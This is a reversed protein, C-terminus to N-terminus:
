IVLIVVIIHINTEMLFSAFYAMTCSMRLLLVVSNM